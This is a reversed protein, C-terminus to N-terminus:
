AAYPKKAPPKRATFMNAWERITWESMMGNLYFPDGHLYTEADERSKTIAMTSLPGGADDLFAGAMLLLGEAHLATSRQIHAAIEGPAKAKADAFSSYELVCRVVYYVPQDSLEMM